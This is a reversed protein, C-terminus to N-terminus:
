KKGIDRFWMQAHTRSAWFIRESVRRFEDFMDKADQWTELDLQWM